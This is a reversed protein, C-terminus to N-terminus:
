GAKKEGGSVGGVGVKPHDDQLITAGSKRVVGMPNRKM